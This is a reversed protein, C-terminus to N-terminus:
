TSVYVYVRMCICVYVSHTKIMEHIQNTGGRKREEREQLHHNFRNAALVDCAGHPSIVALAATFEATDLNGITFMQICIYIYIYIYM